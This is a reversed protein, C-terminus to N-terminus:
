VKLQAEATGEDVDAHVGHVIKPHNPSSSKPTGTMGDLQRQVRKFIYEPIVPSIKTVDEKEKLLASLEKLMADHDQTCRVDLRWLKEVKDRLISWRDGARKHADVLDSPKLFTNAAALIGAATSLVAAIPTSWQTGLAMTGAAATGGLVGFVVTLLGLRRKTTDWKGAYLFHATRSRKCRKELDKM